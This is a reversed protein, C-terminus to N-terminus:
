DRRAPKLTACLRTLNGECQSSVMVVVAASPPFGMLFEPKQFLFQMQHTLFYSGSCLSEHVERSVTCRM